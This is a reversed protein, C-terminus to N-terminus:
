SDIIAAQNKCRIAWDNGQTFSIDFLRGNKKNQKGM